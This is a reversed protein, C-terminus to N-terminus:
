ATFIGTCATNRLLESAYLEYLEQTTEKPTKIKERRKIMLHKLLFFDSMFCFLNLFNHANSAGM